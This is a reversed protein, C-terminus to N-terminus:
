RGGELLVVRARPFYTALIQDRAAGRRAREVTGAVCLGIGHGFGGGEFRFRGRDREVVFRPSPLTDWGLARGVAMRFADGAV